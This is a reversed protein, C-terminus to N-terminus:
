TGGGYSGRRAPRLGFYYIFADLYSRGLSSLFTEAQRLFASLYAHRVAYSVIVEPADVPENGLTSLMALMRAYSEALRRYDARDFILQEAERAEEGELEGAAYAGILELVEWREEGIVPAMRDRGGQPLRSGGRRPSHAHRGSGQEGLGQGDWGTGGIGGRDGCLLTGGHAEFGFGGPAGGARACAGGRDGQAARRKLGSGGPRRRRRWATRAPLSDRRQRRLLLPARPPPPLRKQPPLQPLHQGHDQLALHQLRETGQLKQHKELGAGLGGPQRGPRGRGRAHSAGGLTRPALAEPGAARLGGRRRPLCTRGTKSRWHEGSLTRQPYGGHRAGVTGVRM